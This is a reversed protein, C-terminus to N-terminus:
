QVADLSSFMGTDYFAKTIRLVREVDWIRVYFNKRSSIEAHLRLPKPNAIEYVNDIPVFSPGCLLQQCRNAVGTKVHQNLRFLDRPAPLGLPPPPEPDHKHRM